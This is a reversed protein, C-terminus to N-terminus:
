YDRPPWVLSQEVVTGNDCVPDHCVFDWVEWYTKGNFFDERGQLDFCVQLTRVVDDTLLTGPHKEGAEKLAMLVTLMTDCFCERFQIEPYYDSLYRHHDNLDLGLVDYYFTEAEHDAPSFNLYQMIFESVTQEDSVSLPVGGVPVPPPPPPAHGHPGGGYAPPGAHIPQYPIIGGHVQSASPGVSSPPLSAPGGFNFANALGNM